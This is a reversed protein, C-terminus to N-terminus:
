VWFAFEGAAPSVALCKVHEPRSIAWDALMRPRWARPGGGTKVEGWGVSVAKVLCKEGPESVAQTSRVRAIVRRQLPKLTIPGMLQLM